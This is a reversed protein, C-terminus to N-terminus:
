HREAWIIRRSTYPINSVYADVVKIPELTQGWEKQADACSETLLQTIEDANLMPNEFFTYDRVHTATRTTLDKYKDPVQFFSRSRLRVLSSSEMVIVTDQHGEDISGLDSDLRSPNHQANPVRPPPSSKQISALCTFWFNLKVIAVQLRSHGIRNNCDYQNHVKRVPHRGDSAACRKSSEALHPPLAFNGDQDNDDQSSAPAAYVLQRRTLSSISNPITTKGLLGFSSYTPIM